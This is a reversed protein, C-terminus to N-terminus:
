AAAITAVEGLRRALDFQKFGDRAPGEWEEGSALDRVYLGDEETGALLIEVDLGAQHWELQIGGNATPVMAPVPTSARMTGYLFQLAEAAHRPDIQVAGHTDWNSRLSLLGNLGNLVPEIWGGPPATGTSPVVEDTTGDSVLIPNTTPMSVFIRKYPSVVPGADIWEGYIEPSLLRAYRGASSTGANVPLGRAPFGLQSSISAAAVAVVQAVRTTPVLPSM